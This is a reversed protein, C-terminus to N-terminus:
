KRPSWVELVLTAVSGSVEAAGDGSHDLPVVGLQFAYRGGEAQLGRKVWTITSTTAATPNPSSIPFRGPNMTSRPAPATIPSFVLEVEASDAASMLYDFSVTAVVNVMEVAPTRAVVSFVPTTATGCAGKQCQASWPPSFRFTRELRFLPDASPPPPSRRAAGSLPGFSFVALVSMIGLAGLFVSRRM